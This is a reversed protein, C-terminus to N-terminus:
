GGFAGKFLEDSPSAQPTGLEVAGIDARTGAVSPRPAGRQDTSVNPTASAADIVCSGSGPAMTKTAGGNDALATLQPDCQLTGLPAGWPASGILNFAGNVPIRNVSGVDAPTNANVITGYVTASGIFTFGGGDGGRATNGALTSYAATIDNAFVAGGDGNASNRYFTSNTFDVENANIGGGKTSATNGTVTSSTLSAGTYLAFVGGGAGNQAANGSLTSDVMNLAYMSYIGGGVTASTNGSIISHHVVIAGSAYVGGGGAAGSATVSNNSITSYDINLYANSEIGGGGNAASNGTVTSHTLTMGKTATIAGGGGEPVNNARLISNSVTLTDGALIAGGCYGADLFGNQLILGHITLPETSLILGFNPTGSATGREITVYPTGDAALAGVISAARTLSLAHKLGSASQTLSITTPTHFGTLDIVDGNGDGAACGNVASATNVAAVADILTCSGPVSGASADNVPINAAHAYGALGYGIAAILPLLKTVRSQTAIRSTPTSVM